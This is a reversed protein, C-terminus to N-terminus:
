SVLLSKFLLISLNDNSNVSGKDEQEFYLLFLLGFYKSESEIYTQSIYKHYVPQIQFIIVGFDLDSVPILVSLQSHICIPLFLVCMLLHVNLINLLM